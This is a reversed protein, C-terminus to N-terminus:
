RAAVPLYSMSSSHIRMAPDGFLVYTTILEQWFSNAAITKLMATHAAVGLERGDYPASPRELGFILNNFASLLERHGSPYGLGTPAWVAVAGSNPKLLLKEAM